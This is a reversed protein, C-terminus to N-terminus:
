EVWYTVRCGDASRREIIVDGAYVAFWPLYCHPGPEGYVEIRTVPGHGVAYCQHPEEGWAVFKIPRKDDLLGRHDGGGENPFARRSDQPVSKM